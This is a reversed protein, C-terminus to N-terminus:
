REQAYLLQEIDLIGMLGERVRAQGQIFSTKKDGSTPLITEINEHPITYINTIEDCFVGVPGESTKIVLVRSNESPVTKERNLLVKIEVICLIEGHLNMLGMIHPASGPIRTIQSPRVVEKTKEIPIGYLEKGLRIGVFQKPEEETKGESFDGIAQNKNDIM